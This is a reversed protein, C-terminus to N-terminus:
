KRKLYGRPNQTMLFKERSDDIVFDNNEKLFENLAEMPGPGWGPRVPHGNIDSDEVILYSGKNVFSNYIQLEKLVHDKCHESDLIVM